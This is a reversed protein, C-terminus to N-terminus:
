DALENPMKAFLKWANVLLQEFVSINSRRDRHRDVTFDGGAAHQIGNALMAFYM